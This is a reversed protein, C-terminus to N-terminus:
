GAVNHNSAYSEQRLNRFAAQRMELPVEEGQSALAVLRPLEAQTQEM